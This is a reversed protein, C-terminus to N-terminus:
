YFFYALGANMSVSEWNVVELTLDETTGDSLRNRQTGDEAKWTQYDFGFVLDLSPSLAYNGYLSFRMGLSSAIGHEFSKPHQYSAEAPDGALDGAAYFDSFYYALEAAITFDQSKDVEWLNLGVWVGEWEVNYKRAFTAIDAQTTRNFGNDEEFNQEHYSYGITPMLFLHRHEVNRLLFSYGIAIDADLVDGTTDSIIENTTGADRNSQDFSWGDTVVGYGFMGRLYVRDLKVEAGLRAHFINLDGWETTWQEGTTASSAQWDMGDTRYGAQASLSVEPTLALASGSVMSLAVLSGALCLNRNKM